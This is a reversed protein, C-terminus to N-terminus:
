RHVALVGATGTRVAVLRVTLCNSWIFGCHDAFVAPLIRAPSESRETQRSKPFRATGVGVAPLGQCGKERFRMRVDPRMLPCRSCLPTMTALASHGAITSGIVVWRRRAKKLLGALRVLLVDRRYRSM